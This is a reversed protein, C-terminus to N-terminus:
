SQFLALPTLFVELHYINWDFIRWPSFIFIKGPLSFVFGRMGGSKGEGEGGVGELGWGKRAGWMNTKGEALNEV